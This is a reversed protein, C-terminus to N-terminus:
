ERWLLDAVVPLHDSGWAPGTWARLPYFDPTHWVYDIRVLPFPLPPDAPWTAGLGWGAARFADILGAGTLRRYNDSQDSLNFDGLIVAPGGGTAAAVVADIEPAARPDIQFGFHFGDRYLDPPASHAVIVRLARGAVDVTAVLHPPRGTGGSLSEWETVPYRSLLGREPIGSDRAVLYPYEDALDDRLANLQGPTVEELGILDADSDRLVGEIAGSLADNEYVNITMVRLTTGPNTYSLPPAAQPLFLAGYGWAFVSVGVGSLAILPTRRRWLGVALGAFDPLLLWASFVNALAVPWFDEGAVLRLLLYAIVLLAYGDLATIFLRLGRLGGARVRDDLRNRPSM